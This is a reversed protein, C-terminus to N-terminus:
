ASASRPADRQELTLLQLCAHCKLSQPLRYPAGSLGFSQEVGCCPCPGRVSVFLECQLMRRIGIIVGGVLAVPPVILHVIPIPLVIIAVGVGLVPGLAGRRVRQRGTLRRSEVSALVPATGIGVITCQAHNM